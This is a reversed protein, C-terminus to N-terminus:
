GAPRLSISYRGEHINFIAVEELSSDSNVYQVRPHRCSTADYDIIQGKNWAGSCLEFLYYNGVLDIDSKHWLSTRHIELLPMSLIGERFATNM